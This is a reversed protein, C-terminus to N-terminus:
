LFVNNKSRSVRFCGRQFYEIVFAEKKITQMEYDAVLEYQCKKFTM